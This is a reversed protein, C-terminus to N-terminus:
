KPNREGGLFINTNAASYLNNRLDDVTKYKSLEPYKSYFALLYKQMRYKLYDAQNKYWDALQFVENYSMGVVKEDETRVAGANGIKFSVIPIIRVITAYALFDTIHEDLLTKYHENQEEEIQGTAVLEQLKRLLPTGITEELDSKQAMYLAPTIYKGDTNDNLNSYTKIIDENCLLIDTYNM